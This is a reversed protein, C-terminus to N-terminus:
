AEDKRDEKPFRMVVTTGEDPASFIRIGYNEGYLVVGDLYNNVAVFVFKDNDFLQIKRIKSPMDDIYIKESSKKLRMFIIGGVILMIIAIIISAKKNKM